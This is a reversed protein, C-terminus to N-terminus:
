NVKFYHLIKFWKITTTKLWRCWYKQYSILPKTSWQAQTPPRSCNHSSAIQDMTWWRAERTRSMGAVVAQHQDMTGWIIIVWQSLCFSSLWWHLITATTKTKTRSYSFYKPQTLSVVVWKTEVRCIISLTKLFSLLWIRHISSSNNYFLRNIVLLEVM